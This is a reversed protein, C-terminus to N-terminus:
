EIEGALRLTPAAAVVPLTATVAPLPQAQVADDFALQILRVPPALPDPLPLTDYETAALVPVEDRVPVTVMPSSVNVTVWDPPVAV